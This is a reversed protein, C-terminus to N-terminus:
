CAGSRLDDRAAPGPVRGRRLLWWGVLGAANGIVLIQDMFNALAYLLAFSANAAAAVLFGGAGAEPLAPLAAIVGHLLAFVTVVACEALMGLLCDNLVVWRKGPDRRALYPGIVLAYVAAAAVLLLPM